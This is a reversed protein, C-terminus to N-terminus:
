IKYKDYINRLLEYDVDHDQTMMLQLTKANIDAPSLNTDYLTDYMLTAYAGYNMWHAKFTDPCNYRHSQDFTRLADRLKTMSIQKSMACKVMTILSDTDIGDYVAIEELMSILISLNWKVINISNKKECLKLAISLYPDGYKFWESKYNELATEFNPSNAIDMSRILADHSQKFFSISKGLTIDM